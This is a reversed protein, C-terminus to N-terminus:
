NPGDSEGYAGSPLTWGGRSRILPKEESWREDAAVKIHAGEYPRGKEVLERVSKKRNITFGFEEEYKAIKEVMEPYLHAASAWQNANGFICTICSLRGWGLWYAPHAMVKHKEMIEWVQKETWDHIPRWHHVTRLKGHCRHNEFTNYNSRSKSEEAREGTVVLNKKGKFREQNNIAASMVDIKLVSSCWRVRLDASVQPFMRRTDIKGRKGGSNGITGDPNEWSVSAVRDNEKLLEREFGGDRWSFYIPVNFEKAFQRCYDETIPWDMFPESGPAGDILHHWLEIKEPKVGCDLLHLFCATSDKGGSFAVIIFDYDELDMNLGSRWEAKIFAEAERLDYVKKPIEYVTAHHTNRWHGKRYARSDSTNHTYDALEGDDENILEAFKRATTIRDFALCFGEGACEEWHTIEVIAVADM